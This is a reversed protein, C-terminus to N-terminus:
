ILIEPGVSSTGSTKTEWRNHVLARRRPQDCSYNICSSADMAKKNLTRRSVTARDVPSVRSLM